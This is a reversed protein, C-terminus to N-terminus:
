LGAKICLNYWTALAIFIAGIVAMGIAWKRETALYQEKTKGMDFARHWGRPQSLRGYALTFLTMIVFVVIAVGVSLPTPGSYAAYFVNDCFIWLPYFLITIMQGHGPGWIPPMLLAGINFYPLGEMLKAERAIQEDTLGVSAQSTESSQQNAM